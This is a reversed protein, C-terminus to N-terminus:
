PDHKSQLHLSKRYETTFYIRNRTTTTQVSNSLWYAWAQQTRMPTPSRLKVTGWESFIIGKTSVCSMSDAKTPTKKQAIPRSYQHANQLWCRKVQHQKGTQWAWALTLSLYPNGAGSTPRLPLFRPNWGPVNKISQYPCALYPLGYM